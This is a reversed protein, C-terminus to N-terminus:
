PIGGRPRSKITSLPVIGGESALCVVPLAGNSVENSPQQAHRKM